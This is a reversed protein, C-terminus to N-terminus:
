NPQIMGERTRFVETIKSRGPNNFLVHVEKSERKSIVKDHSVNDGFYGVPGVLVHFISLHALKPDLNNAVTNHM